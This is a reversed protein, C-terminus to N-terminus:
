FTEIEYKKVTEVFIKELTGPEASWEGASVTKVLGGNVLIGVRHAIKEVEAIIHSSFLITKGGRNLGLLIERMENLGLPDLGTIPEDLVLLSPDHILAQALSLRQLMGKSCERVKKEKRSTMKVLALVEEARAKLREDPVGSLRGYFNLVEEVSLHGPFYPVEPLFGASQIAERDPLKKDRLFIEGATPFLLGLILKLATTKGAGNLGLLGFIEGQFIELDLDRVGVTSKVKGLHSKRYIKTLNSLRLLPREAM